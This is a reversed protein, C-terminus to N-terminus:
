KYFKEATKKCMAKSAMGLIEDAAESVFRDVSEKFRKKELEVMQHKYELKTKFLVEIAEKDVQDNIVKEVLNATISEVYVNRGAIKTEKQVSEQYVETFANSAFAAAYAPFDKRQRPPSIPILKKIADDEHHDEEDQNHQLYAYLVPDNQYIGDSTFSNVPPPLNVPPCPGNCLVQFKSLDNWHIRVEGLNGKQKNSIWKSIPTIGAVDINGEKRGAMNLDTPTRYDLEMGLCNAFTIADIEEDFALLETLEFM